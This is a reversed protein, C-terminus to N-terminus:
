ERSSDDGGGTGLVDAVWDGIANTATRPNDVNCHMDGGVDPGIVMLEARPSNVARVLMDQAMSLPTQPDNKGHIIFLPVEIKEM